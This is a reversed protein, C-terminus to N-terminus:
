AFSGPFLITVWQEEDLLDLGVAYRLPALGHACAGILILVDLISLRRQDRRPM